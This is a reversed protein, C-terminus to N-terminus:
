HSSDGTGEVSVGKMILRSTFTDIELVSQPGQTLSVFPLRRSCHIISEAAVRRDSALVTQQEREEIVNTSNVSLRPCAEFRLKTESSIM